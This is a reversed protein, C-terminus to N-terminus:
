QALERSRKMAASLTKEILEDIGPKALLEKLGAETTGGPSTVAKRLDEATDESQALLAGSGITTQRALLAAMDPALGLKEGARAMAECLAFVYAPGSGSLATVADILKEDQVWVAAGVSKLITDCLERQPASTRVNATAVTMGQGISAPLNPMARVVAKDSGLIKEIAAITFGAAISLFVTGNFRAYTPLTAAMQQPKIAFIVIDPNLDGSIEVDSKLWRVATLNELQRPRGAPEIVVLDMQSAIRQLLAGGMKGCGVLLCKM